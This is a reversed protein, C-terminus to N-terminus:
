IRRQDGLADAECKRLERCFRDMADLFADEARDLVQEHTNPDLPDKSSYIAACALAHGLVTALHYENVETTGGDRVLEGSLLWLKEGPSMEDLLLKEM